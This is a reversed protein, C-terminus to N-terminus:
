RLHDHCNRCDGGVVATDEVAITEVRIAHGHFEGTERGPQPDSGGAEAIVEISRRCRDDETHRFSESTARRGIARMEERDRPLANSDAATRSM